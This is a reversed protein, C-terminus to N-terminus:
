PPTRMRKSNFRQLSLRHCLVPDPCSPVFVFISVIAQCNQLSITEQVSCPNRAQLNKQQRHTNHVVLVRKGSIISQGDLIKGIHHSPPHSHVHCMIDNSSIIKVGVWGWGGGWWRVLDHLYCCIRERGGTKSRRFACPKLKSRYPHRDIPTAHISVCGKCCSKPTTHTEDLYFRARFALNRYPDKSIM